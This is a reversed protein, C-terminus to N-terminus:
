SLKVATKLATLIMEDFTTQREIPTTEEGTLLHDSVTLIALARKGLRAATAYLAASEMEVALVGMKRWSSQASPDDNYFCDSSLVTGVSFSLDQERAAAVAAELLKFDATPAFSGPLRYQAAFSSDTCAGIAIIMDRLKVKESMGGASGVRIINEVGYFSYLEYSYIGISPQGMGSAMVSVPCGNYLGTHGEIGRVNNVRRCDSLYKEAIYKARLPDGPMLVTKAFDGKVAENHPTM